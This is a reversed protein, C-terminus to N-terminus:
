KEEVKILYFLCKERSLIGGKFKEKTLVLNNRPFQIINRGIGDRYLTDIISENYILDKYAYTSYFSIPISKFYKMLEKRKYINIYNFSNVRGDGNVINRESYFSIMGSYDFQFIYESPQVKEKLLLAYDYEDDFEYYYYRFPFFYILSLVIFVIFLTKFYNIKLLPLFSFLILGGFNSLAFYWEKAGDHNFLIQFLLFVVGACYFYEILKLLYSTAGSFLILRKKIYIFYSGGTIITISLLLMRFPHIIFTKLSYHLSDLKFNSFSLYGSTTRIDGYNIYNFVLYITYITIVPLVISLLFRNRDIKKYEFFFYGPILFIVFDIRALSLLALLIGRTLVFKNKKDTLSYLYNYVVILLLYIQIELGILDFLVSPIVLISALLFVQNSKDTDMFLKFSKYLYYLTFFNIISTLLFTLRVLLIPSTINILNLIYYYGSLIILWLPHYGNTYNLGDFTSGKGLAINNAIKFYFYADDLCFHLLYRFPVVFPLLVIFGVFYFIVTLKIFLNKDNEGLPSSINTIM